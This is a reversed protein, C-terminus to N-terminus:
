HSRRGALSSGCSACALASACPPAPFRLAHPAPPDPQGAAGTAGQRAPLPRTLRGALAGLVAACRALDTGITTLVIPGEAPPVEAVLAPNGLLDTFSPRGGTMM